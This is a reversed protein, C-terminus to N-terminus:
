LCYSIPKTSENIVKNTTYCQSSMGILSTSETKRNYQMEPKFIFGNQKSCRFYRMKKLIFASRYTLHTTIHELNNQSSIM